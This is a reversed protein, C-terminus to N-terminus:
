KMGPLVMFVKCLFFECLPNVFPGIKLDHIMMLSVLVSNERLGRLMM